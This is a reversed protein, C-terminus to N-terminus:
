VHRVLQLRLCVLTLWTEWGKDHKSPGIIVPLSIKQLHLVLNYVDPFAGPRHLFRPTGQDTVM